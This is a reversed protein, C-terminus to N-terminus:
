GGFGILAVGAIALPIGALQIRSLREHEIVRALAVTGAPALATLVVAETILGTRVAALFWANASMDFLGSWISLGGVERGVALGGTGMSAVILFGPATLLRAGVLPVAGSDGSTFDILIFFLSFGIGALVGDLFGPPLRGGEPKGVVDLTPGESSVLPIAILGLVVGVAAAATPREGGAVGWVAPIVAALVATLPAVLGMRGKALGRYLFALGAAGVVGAAAGIILDTSWIDGPFVILLGLALVLGAVHGLAIVPIPNGTGRRTALGGFFDGVGFSAAALLSFIAAM